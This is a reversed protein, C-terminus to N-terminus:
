VQYEFPLEQYYGLEIMGKKQAKVIKIIQAPALVEKWTGAKGKNFFSKSFEKKEAFGNEVEQKKIQNFTSKEIATKLEEDSFSYGLFELCKGFLYVPNVLLDEYKLLLYQTNLQTKHWSFFHGQWSSLEYPLQQLSNNIANKDNLVTIAKHISIDYHKAFSVVVDLPNRVIHVIGKTDEFNILSENKFINANHIKVYYNKDFGYALNSIISKQFQEIIEYNINKSNLMTSKEFIELSSFIQEVILENLNFKEKNLFATLFIRLWTNGSKPYSALWVVNKVM